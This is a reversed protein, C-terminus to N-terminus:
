TSLFKWVLKVSHNKQKVLIQPKTKNGFIVSTKDPLHSYFYFTFCCGTVLGEGCIHQPAMM